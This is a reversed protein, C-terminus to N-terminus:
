FRKKKEKYILNGKKFIKYRLKDFLSSERRGYFKKLESQSAIKANINFHHLSYKHLKYKKFSSIDILFPISLKKSLALGASYQFLQNGLGGILRTIIIKKM